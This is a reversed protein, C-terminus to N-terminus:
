DGDALVHKSSIEYEEEVETIAQKVHGAMEADFAKAHADYAKVETAVAALYEAHEYIEGKTLSRRLRDWVRWTAERKKTYEIYLEDTKNM